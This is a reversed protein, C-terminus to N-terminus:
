YFIVYFFLFFNEFLRSLSESIILRWLNSIILCKCRGQRRLGKIHLLKRLVYYLFWALKADFFNEVKKLYVISLDAIKLCAILM